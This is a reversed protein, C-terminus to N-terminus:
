RRREAYLNRGTGFLLGVTRIGAEHDATGEDESSSEACLVLGGRRYKRYHCRLTRENRKKQSIISGALVPTLVGMYIETYITHIKYAIGESLFNKGENGCLFQM